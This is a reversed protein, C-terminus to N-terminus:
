KLEETEKKLDFYKNKWYLKEKVKENWIDVYIWSTILTIPIILVIVLILDKVKLTRKEKTWEIILVIVTVFFHVVYMSALVILLINM